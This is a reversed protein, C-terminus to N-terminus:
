HSAVIEEELLLGTFHTHHNGSDLTDVLHAGLSMLDIGVWVRDDKKLKLTSQLTLPTFHYGSTKAEEVYGVGIRGGNLYLGVGLWVKSSSAPFEAVGTFSFYYTGQRPATFIGSTLNLANGENVRALTFPIPIGTSNFSSSRQVYFHVPASKVDAYGIRRQLAKGNSYFNCYVTEMKKSGKVLFFGSLKYGTRQLDTCSTPMRGIDVIESTRANLNTSLLDVTKSLDARTKELDKKTEILEAELKNKTETWEEKTAKILEIALKWSPKEGYLQQIGEIDDKDLKFDSSYEYIPYMVAKTVNTHELGLSHGINHTAVQFLNTGKDSNLTWTESEDFHADGGNVPFAAHSLTGGPGDNFSPCDGHEGSAFLIEIDVNASENNLHVFTLDTVDAWMQFARAIERDVDSKTMDTTYNKIKYTLQKKPWKSGQLAFRKQRDSSSGPRVRDPVGCRPKNMFKKTETDLKGTKNLGAFSQFDEIAKRFSEALLIPSRSSNQYGLDLYGFRAPHVTVEGVDTIPAADSLNIVSLYCLFSLTLSMLHWM